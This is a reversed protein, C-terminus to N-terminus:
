RHKTEHYNSTAEQLFRGPKQLHVTHRKQEQEFHYAAQECMCAWSHFRLFRFVKAIRLCRKGWQEYTRPDGYTVVKMVPELSEVKLASGSELKGPKSDYGGRELAEILSKLNQIAISDEQGTKANKEYDVADAKKPPSNEDEM